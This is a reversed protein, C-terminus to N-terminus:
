VNVGLRTRNAWYREMGYTHHKFNEKCKRIEVVVCCCWCRFFHQKRQFEVYLIKKKQICSISLVFTLFNQEVRRYIYVYRINYFYFFLFFISMCSGVFIDAVHCQTTKKGNNKTAAMAHPQCSPFHSYFSAFFFFRNPQSSPFSYSNECKVNIHM